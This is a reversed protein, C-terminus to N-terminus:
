FICSDSKRIKSLYEFADQHHTSSLAAKEVCVFYMLVHCRRNCHNYRFFVRKIPPARPFYSYEAAENTVFFFTLPTKNDTKVNIFYNFNQIITFCFCFYKLAAKFHQMKIITMQRESVFKALENQILSFNQSM